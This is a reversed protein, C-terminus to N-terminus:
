NKLIFIQERFIAYFERIKFHKCSFFIVKEKENLKRFGDAM